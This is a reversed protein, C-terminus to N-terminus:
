LWTLSPELYSNFSFIGTHIIGLQHIYDLAILIYRVAPRLMIQPLAGTELRHIFDSLDIGSPEYLICCHTGHPGDISFSDLVRRVHVEGGHIDEISKM